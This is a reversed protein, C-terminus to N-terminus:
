RLADAIASANYQMYDLYTAAPGDAESLSGTYLRVIVAGSEDAIQQALDESVTTETFIAPVHHMQITEILALVDQVSPESTTSGGPIVVGALTLGYRAAFYNFALHNTVIVRREQPVGDIQAQISASLAALEALYADTNAAYVGAHAPDLASLTDRIMLAWLGANVPDTWVHPDCSGAEHVRDGAQAHDDAHGTDCVGTYVPGLTDGAEVHDLGFAAEATAHHTECTAGMSGQMASPQDHDDAHGADDAATGTSVPRVPVCASVSVVRDGGAEELVASLGEEFNMGVVLVADAESLTVVDQASAEYAHPNTGRPMLSEVVAADGAVHQAVDALISFSAVVRPRNQAHAHGPLAPLAIVAVILVILGAIKAHNLSM